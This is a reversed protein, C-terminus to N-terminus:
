AAAERALWRELAADLVKDLTGVPFLAEETVRWMALDWGNVGPRAPDNIPGEYNAAPDVTAATPTTFTFRSAAARLAGTWELYPFDPTARRGPSARKYYSHREPAGRRSRSRDAFHAGIRQRTTAGLGAAREDITAQAHRLDLPAFRSNWVSLMAEALPGREAAIAPLPGGELFRWFSTLDGLKAIRRAIEAQAAAQNDVTVNM